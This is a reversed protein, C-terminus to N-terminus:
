GSCMSGSSDIFVPVTRHTMIQLSTIFTSQLASLVYLNEKDYSLKTKM